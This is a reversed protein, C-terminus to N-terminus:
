QQQRPQGKYRGVYAAKAIVKGQMAEMLEKRSASAPLDLNANMAYLEFVYHHYKPGPPAGPGMYANQRMLNTGVVSGEPLSGEPIGGAAAPINWALWHLIDDTGGGVNVDIDHLIIAYSVTGDEPNLFKFEPQVNGGRAAYKEPIVGGDEFASTEMKLNPIRFGGRRQQAAVDNVYVCLMLLSVIFAIKKYM